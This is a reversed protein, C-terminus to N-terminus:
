PRPTEVVRFKSLPIPSVTEATIRGRWRATEEYELMVKARGSNDIVFMGYKQLAKAIVACHGRCGMRRLDRKSLSPDLQLRAGEPLDGPSNSDGDSKTAPYIYEGTPFDYAFALAHEIRGRDLECRRVLGALYTVGAGRSGFPDDSGRERPPVGSWKISYHYGNEMEWGDSGRRLRWAGWEDGSDRDILVIQADSGEAAVAGRPIPMRVRGEDQFRLRRGGDTVNSFRGHVLVPERPTDSSVHYVPYTYQTPDSTLEGDLAPVRRRVVTPDDSIPTNWPSDDTYPRTCDPARAAAAGREPDDGGVVFVLVVVTAVVLAVGAVVGYRVM